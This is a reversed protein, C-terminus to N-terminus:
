MILCWKKSETAEEATDTTSDSITTRKDYHFKYGQTNPTSVQIPKRLNKLYELSTNLLSYSEDTKLKKVPGDDETIKRKRDLRSINQEPSNFYESIYTSRDQSLSVSSTNVFLSDNPSMQRQRLTVHKLRGISNRGSINRLTRGFSLDRFSESMSANPDTSDMLKSNDKLCDNLKIQVDKLMINSNYSIFSVDDENSQLNDETPQMKDKDPVSESTTSEVTEVESLNENSHPVETSPSISVTSLETEVVEKNENAESVPKDEQTKDEASNSTEYGNSNKKSDDKAETVSKTEDPTEVSNVKEEKNDKSSDEAVQQSQELVIECEVAGNANSTATAENSTIQEKEANDEHKNKLKSMDKKSGKSPVSSEKTEQTKMVRHKSNDTSSLSLASSRDNKTTTQVDM